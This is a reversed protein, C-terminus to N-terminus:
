IGLRVSQMSQLKKDKDTELRLEEFQLYKDKYTDVFFTKTMRADKALYLRGDFKKTIEDLRSLLAFLGESLPFDLALTYGQMPFSLGGEDKGLLKLVALFSGFGCNSVQELIEKIGQYSYVLPFVCQYQIFGKRGYIRNWNNIDDLPYFFDNYSVVSETSDKRLGYYFANFAKVTYKNLTYAPLFCPISIKSNSKVDLPKKQLEPSLLSPEAHEGVMLLSRGMEKGKALCDIWAVSYTSSSFKEFKTMIEGLSSCKIINQVIYATSISMLQIEVELVIGTLGMGGLTADFLTRNILKSCFIIKGSAQMLSFGLVCASFAGDKHHNKGHVNSAIAGGVTVYKTGPTVLLFWGRPVFIELIEALSTGSECKLVGTQSNFYLMKNFKHTSTIAGESLASDGYSRGMGRAILSKNAEFIAQLDEIENFYTLKKDIKPYQGWGAIMIRYKFVM